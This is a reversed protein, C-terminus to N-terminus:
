EDRGTKTLWFDLLSVLLLPRLIESSAIIEYDWKERKKGNDYTVM